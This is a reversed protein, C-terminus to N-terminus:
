GTSAITSLHLAYSLLDASSGDESLVTSYEWDEIVKGVLQEVGAAHIIKACAAHLAFFGPNPLPM